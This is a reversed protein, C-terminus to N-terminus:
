YSTGPTLGTLRPTLTHPLEELAKGMDAYKKKRRRRRRKKKKKKKKKKEEKKKERKRRRKQQQQQGLSTTHENMNM